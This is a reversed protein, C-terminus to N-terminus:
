MLDDVSQKKKGKEDRIAQKAAQKELYRSWPEVGTRIIFEYENYSEDVNKVTKPDATHASTRSIINKEMKLEVDYDGYKALYKVIKGTSVDLLNQTNAKMFTLLKMYTEDNYYIVRVCSALDEEGLQVIISYDDYDPRVEEEADAIISLINLTTNLANSKNLYWTNTKEHYKFRNEKFENKSYNLYKSYPLDQAYSVIVMCLTLSFLILKKM